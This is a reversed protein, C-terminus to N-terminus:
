ILPPQSPATQEPKLLLLSSLIDLVDLQSLSSLSNKSDINHILNSKWLLKKHQSPQSDQVKFTETHQSVNSDRM